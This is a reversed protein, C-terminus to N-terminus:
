ALRIQGYLTDLETKMVLIRFIKGLESSKQIEKKKQRSNHAHLLAVESIFFCLIHISPLRNEAETM